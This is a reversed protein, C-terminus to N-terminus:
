IVHLIQVHLIQVCERKGPGFEPNVDEVITVSWNYVSIHLVIPSYSGCVLHSIIITINHYLIGM